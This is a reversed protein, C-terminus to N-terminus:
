KKHTAKVPQKPLTKPGVGKTKQRTDKAWEYASAVCLKRESKPLFRGDQCVALAHGYTGVVLGGNEWHTRQNEDYIFELYQQKQVKKAKAHKVTTVHAPSTNHAVPAAQAGAATGVTLALALAATSTIKTVINKRM